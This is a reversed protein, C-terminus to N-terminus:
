SLPWSRSSRFSWPPLSLSLSRPSSGAASSPALSCKGTALVGGIITFAFLPFKEFFDSGFLDFLRRFLELLVIGVAIAVGLAVAAATVQSMGQWEDM